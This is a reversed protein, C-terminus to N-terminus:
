NGFSMNQSSNMIGLSNLTSESTRL